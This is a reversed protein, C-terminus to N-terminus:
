LARGVGFPLDYLGNVTVRQRTDWPSNAYDDIIPVLNLNRYGGEGTSGLTTSADDM